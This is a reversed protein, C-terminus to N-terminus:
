SKKRNKRVDFEGSQFIAIWKDQLKYSQRIIKEAEVAKEIKVSEDDRSDKKPMKNINM